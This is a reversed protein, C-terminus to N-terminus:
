AEHRKGTAFADIALRPHRGFMLYFPSYGTSGHLTINYAQTLTSVHENLNIKQKDTMAGLMSLITNNFREVM